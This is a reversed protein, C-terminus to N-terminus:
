CVDLKNLMNDLIGSLKKTSFQKPSNSDLNNGNKDFEEKNIDDENPHDNEFQEYYGEPFKSKIHDM